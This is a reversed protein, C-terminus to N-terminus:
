SRTGTVLRERGAMAVARWGPYRRDAARRRARALGPATIANFSMLAVIGPLPLTAFMGAQRAGRVDAPRASIAIGVPDPLRCSGGREGQHGRRPVPLRDTGWAARSPHTAAGTAPTMVPNGGRQRGRSARSPIRVPGRCGPLAPHHRRGAPGPRRGRGAADAAPEGLEAELRARAPRSGCRAARGRRAEPRDAAARGRRLLDYAKNVTHFNIGLDVALQRTAPLGSGASLEGAAIAEVIRNRIQQYIPVISDRIQQHMSAPGDPDISLLM